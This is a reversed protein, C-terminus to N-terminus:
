YYGNGYVGTGTAGTSHGFVGQQNSVGCAGADQNYLPDSGGLFGYRGYLTQGPLPGPTAQSGGWVGQGANSSGTVGTYNPADGWVGTITNGAFLNFPKTPAPDSNEGKVGYSATSDAIGDLHGM